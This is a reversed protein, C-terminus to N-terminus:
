IKIVQKYLIHILIRARSLATKFVDKFMMGLKESFGCIAKTEAHVRVDLM